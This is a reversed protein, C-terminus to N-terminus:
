QTPRAALVVVVVVAVFAVVVVVAILGVGVGCLTGNNAANEGTITLLKPTVDLEELMRMVIEALNEGAHPECIDTFELLEERNEFEPSIWSWHHGHDNDSERIDL